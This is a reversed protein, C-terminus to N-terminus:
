GQLKLNLTLRLNIHVQATGNSLIVEVPIAIDTTGPSGSLQVSVPATSITAPPRTPAPSLASSAAPSAAPAPRAAPAPASV